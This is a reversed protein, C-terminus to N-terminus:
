SARTSKGKNEKRDDGFPIQKRDPGGRIRTAGEARRDRGSDERRCASNARQVPGINEPILSPFLHHSRWNLAVIGAMQ